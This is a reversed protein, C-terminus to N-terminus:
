VLFLSFFTGPQSQTLVYMFMAPHSHTTSDSNRELDSNYEADFETKLCEHKYAYECVLSMQKLPGVEDCLRFRPAYVCAPIVYVPFTGQFQPSNLILISESCYYADVCIMLIFGTWCFHRM